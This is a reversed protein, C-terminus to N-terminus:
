ENKPMAAVAASLAAPLTDGVAYKNGIVQWQPMGSSPSCISFGNNAMNLAEIDAVVREAAEARATLAAFGARLEAAEDALLV